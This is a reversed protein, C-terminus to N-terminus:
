RWCDCMPDRQNCTCDRRPKTPPSSHTRAGPSTPESSPPTKARGLAAELERVRAESLALEVRLRAQEKQRQEGLDALTKEARVLQARLTAEAPRWVFAWLGVSGVLLLVSLAGFLLALASLRGLRRDRAFALQQEDRATEASIVALRAQLEAAIRARELEAERLAELRVHEERERAARQRAAEARAEVQQRALQETRAREEAELRDAELQRRRAALVEEKRRQEETQMLECLSVTVSSETRAM